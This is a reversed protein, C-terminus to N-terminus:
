LDNFVNVPQSNRMVVAYSIQGQVGKITLFGDNKCWGKLSQANQGRRVQINQNLKLFQRISCKGGGLFDVKLDFYVVVNIWVNPQLSQFYNLLMFQQVQGITTNKRSWESSPLSTNSTFGESMQEGRNDLFSLLRGDAVESDDSFGSQAAGNRQSSFVFGRMRVCPAEKFSEM